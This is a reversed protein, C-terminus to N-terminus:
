EYGMLYHLANKSNKDLTVTTESTANGDKINSVSVISTLKVKREAGALGKNFDDANAWTYSNVGSKKDLTKNAAAKNARLLELSKDDSSVVLVEKNNFMKAYSGLLPENKLLDILKTAKDANIGLALLTRPEPMAYPNEETVEPITTDKYSVFAYKGNLANTIEEFTINKTELYSNVMAEFGAEKVFYRLFDFSMYGISYSKSEDIDINKIISYDVEKGKYHKEVLKQLEENFFTKTNFQIKGKDFNLSMGVGADVLLKNVALTEIYGRSATSIIGYLNIWSSMDSDKDLSKDIQETFKKNDSPKRNWLDKYFKESLLGDSETQNYDYGAYPSRMSRSLVIMDGNISGILQSDSYVLNKTKDIRIKTESIKSFNKVFKDQDDLWGFFSIVFDNKDYDSMVYLPKEIDIGNDEANIFLKFKESESKSFHNTTDKMIEDKPFKGNLQELNIKVVAMTKASAFKLIEKNSDDSSCSTVLLGASVLLFAYISKRM